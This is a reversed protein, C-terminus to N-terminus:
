GKFIRQETGSRAVQGDGWEACAEAKVEGGVWGAPRALCFSYFGGLVKRAEVEESKGDSFNVKVTVHMPPSFGPSGVVQVSGTLRGARANHHLNLIRVGPETPSAPPTRPDFGWEEPTKVSPVVTFRGVISYPNENGTPPLLPAPKVKLIGKTGSLSFNACFGALKPGGLPTTAPSIFDCDYEKVEIKDSFSVRRPTCHPFPPRKSTPFIPGSVRTLPTALGAIARSSDLFTARCM